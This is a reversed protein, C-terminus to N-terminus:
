VDNLYAYEGFYKVAADNYAKAANKEDTFIGLHIQKYNVVIYARWKNKSRTKSVGKYISSTRLGSESKNKKLNVANLSKTALRLNKNESPNQDAHDIFYKGPDVGSQMYYIIRHCFYEGRTDTKIHVRWYGASTKHGAPAGKKVKPSRSNKWRLGSPSSDDLYFLHQLLELPPLPKPSYNRM